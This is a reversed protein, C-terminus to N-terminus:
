VRSSLEFGIVGRCEVSRITEPRTPLLQTERRVWKMMAHMQGIASNQQSEAETNRSLCLRQLARERQMLQQVIFEASGRELDEESM